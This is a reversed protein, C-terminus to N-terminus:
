TKRKEALRLLAAAVAAPAELLLNHGCGPVATLRAQPLSERMEGALALFKGDEEGVLLEIPLEFTALRPRYDPMRGPSLLALTSALAAPQHALNIAEQEALLEKPLREQSAFLPQRRWEALFEPLGRQRLRAAAADDAAARASRAEGTLGPAAGILLAGAFLERFDALLGLALRAGLSYGALLVRTSFRGRIQAALTAVAATFGAAEPAGGHGPLDPCFAEVGALLPQALVARWSRGSGLFGHLLVVKM